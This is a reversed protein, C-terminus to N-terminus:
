GPLDAWRPAFTQGVEKKAVEKEMTIGLNRSDPGIVIPSAGVGMTQNQANTRFNEQNKESTVGSLEKINKELVDTRQGVLRSRNLLETVQRPINELLGVTETAITASDYKASM